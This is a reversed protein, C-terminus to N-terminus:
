KLHRETATKKNHCSSCLTQHNDTDIFLQWQEKLDKVSRFPKIHDVVGGNTVDKYVGENKCHECYPQKKLQLERLGGRQGIPKNPNGKWIPYNYWKDTKKNAFSTDFEKHRECYRGKTKIGCSPYNCISKPKYPM